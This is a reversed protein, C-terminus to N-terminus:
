TAEPDPTEEKRCLCETQDCAESEQWCDWDKDHRHLLTTGRRARNKPALSLSFRHLFIGDLITENEAVTRQVCDIGATVPSGDVSGNVLVDPSVDEAM